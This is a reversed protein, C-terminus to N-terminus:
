PSTSTPIIGMPQRWRGPKSPVAAISWNRHRGSHGRIGYGTVPNESLATFAFRWIDARNTFTADIGLSSIFDGLPKIVASGVAFLNFLAVGGVAIPIRLFRFREFMFALILIGPLMASSTKGGTHLLFVASLVVIAIGALRSWANM